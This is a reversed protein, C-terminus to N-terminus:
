WAGRFFILVVPGGRLDSLTVESGDVAPLTFDPAMDGLEPGIASGIESSAGADDGAARAPAASWAIMMLAAGVAFPALRRPARLAQTMRPM